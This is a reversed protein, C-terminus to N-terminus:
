NPFANCIWFCFFLSLTESHYQYIQPKCVFFLDYLVGSPGLQFYLTDIQWGQADWLFDDPKPRPLAAPLIIQNRKLEILFIGFRQAHCHAIRQIDPRHVINGDNGPTLHLTKSCGKSHYQPLWHSAVISITTRRTASCYVLSFCSHAFALAARSGPLPFSSFLTWCAGITLSNPCIM